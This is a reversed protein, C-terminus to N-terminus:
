KALDLMELSRTRCRLMESPPPCAGGHAQRWAEAHQQLRRNAWCRFPVVFLTCEGVDFRRITADRMNWGRARDAAALAARIEPTIKTAKM